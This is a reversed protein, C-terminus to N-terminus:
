SVNISLKEFNKLKLTFSTTLSPSSYFIFNTEINLIYSYHGLIVGENQETWSNKNNKKNLLMDWVVM